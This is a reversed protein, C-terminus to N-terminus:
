EIDHISIKRAIQMEKAKSQHPTLLYKLSYLSFVKPISQEETSIINKPEM